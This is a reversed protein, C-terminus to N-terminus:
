VPVFALLVLLLPELLITISQTMVVSIAISQANQLVYQLLKSIQLLYYCVKSFKCYYNKSKAISKAIDPFYLLVSIRMCKLHLFCLVLFKHIM